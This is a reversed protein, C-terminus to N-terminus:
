FCVGFSYRPRPAIAAFLIRSAIFCARVRKFTQIESIWVAMAILVAAAFVLWVSIFAIILHPSRVVAVSPIEGCPLVVINTSHTGMCMPRSNNTPQNTPIHALSCCALSSCCSFCGDLRYFLSAPHCVSHKTHRISNRHKQRMWAVIVATQTVFVTPYGDRKYHCSWVYCLMVEYWNPTVCVHQKQKM